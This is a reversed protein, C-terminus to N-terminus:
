ALVPWCGPPNHRVENRPGRKVMLKQVVVKTDNCYGRLSIKDLKVTVLIGRTDLVLAGFGFDRARPWRMM